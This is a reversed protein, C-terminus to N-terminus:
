EGAELEALLKLDAKSLEAKALLDPRLKATVRLSEKRRWKKIAAHNGSLLVEPVRMDRWIEPRTYNPASLLGDAFSDELLSQPEGLVGPLLRIVADAMCLAPMEGNTLVFDGLSYSHTALESEIRHDFGEYHGCLFILHDLRSLASADEQTFPKAAPSPLVIAAESDPTLSEVALWVPEVKILMGPHGGFPTDDVKLHKDTCFDRPNVVGFEVLGARSARGLMSSNLFPVLTEPFLSLFQVKVRGNQVLQRRL